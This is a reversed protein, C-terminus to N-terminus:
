FRTTGPISGPGRSRYGPFRVVLGCLRVTKTDYVLLLLLCLLMVVRVYCLLVYIKASADHLASPKKVIHLSNMIGSRDNRQLARRDDNEVFKTTFFNTGAV